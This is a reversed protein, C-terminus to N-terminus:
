KTNALNTVVLVLTLEQIGLATYSTIDGAIRTHTKHDRIVVGGGGGGKGVKLTTKTRSGLQGWHQLLSIIEKPLPRPCVLNKSYVQVGDYLEHM